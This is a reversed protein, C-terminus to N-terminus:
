HSVIYVCYFYLSYQLQCLRSSKEMQEAQNQISKKIYKKPNEVLIFSSTPM